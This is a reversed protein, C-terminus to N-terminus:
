ANQTEYNCVRYFVNRKQRIPVNKKHMCPTALSASIIIRIRDSHSNSAVFLANAIQDHTCFMHFFFLGRGFLWFMSSFRSRSCGCIRHLGCRDIRGRFRSFRSLRLRLILRFFSRLGSGLDFCSVVGIVALVEERGVGSRIIHRVRAPLKFDDSDNQTNDNRQNSRKIKGTSNEEHTM